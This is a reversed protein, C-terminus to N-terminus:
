WLARRLSGSTGLGHPGDGDPQVLPSGDPGLWVLIDGFHIDRLDVAGTGFGGFTKHLDNLDM